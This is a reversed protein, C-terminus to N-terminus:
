GGFRWWSRVRKAALADLRVGLEAFAAIAKDVRDREAALQERLADNEGRLTKIHSELADVLASNDPVADARVVPACRDSLDDPPM